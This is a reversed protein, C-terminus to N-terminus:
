LSWTENVEIYNHICSVREAVKWKMGKALDDLMAERNLYYETVEKGLHRSGSHIAAYLNGERDKDLEFFDNGGGLTGLSHM